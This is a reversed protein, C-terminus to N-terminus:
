KKTFQEYFTEMKNLIREITGKVFTKNINFAYKSVEEICPSFNNIIQEYSNNLDDTELEPIAEALAVAAIQCREVNQRVSDSWSILNHQLDKDIKSYVKDLDENLLKTLGELNTGTKSAIRLLIARYGALSDRLNNVDIFFVTLFSRSVIDEDDMVM